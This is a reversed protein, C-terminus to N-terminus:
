YCGLMKWSMYKRMILVLTMYITLFLDARNWISTFILLSPLLHSVVTLSFFTTFHRDTRLILCLLFCSWICWCCPWIMQSFFFMYKSFSASHFHKIRPTVSLFEKFVVVPCVWNKIGESGRIKHYQTSFFWLKCELPLKCCNESFVSIEIWSVIESASGTM